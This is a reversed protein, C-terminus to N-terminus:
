DIRDALSHNGSTKLVALAERMVIEHLLTAVQEGQYNALASILDHEYDDFRLTIRKSRVRKPDPYM